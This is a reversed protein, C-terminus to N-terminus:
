GAAPHGAFGPSADGASQRGLSRCGAHRSRNRAGGAQRGHREDTPLDAGAHLLKLYSEETLQTVPLAAIAVAIMKANPDFALGRGKSVFLGTAKLYRLNMDAYDMLTAEKVDEQAATRAYLASLFPRLEGARSAREARHQCIAKATEEANANAATNQVFLAMEDFTIHAGQGERELHLLVNVVLVLPSFARAADPRLALIARLYGNQEQVTKAVEALRLANPSLAYAGAQGPVRELFGLKELGARWKRGLFPLSHESPLVTLRAQAIAEQTGDSPEVVGSDYLMLALRQEAEPGQLNSLINSGQLAIVADKIRYPNRITTNGINWPMESLSLSSSASRTRTTTWM